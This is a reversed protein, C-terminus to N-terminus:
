ELYEAIARIHNGCNDCSEKHYIKIITTNSALLSNKADEEKMIEYKFEIFAGCYPCELIKTYKTM